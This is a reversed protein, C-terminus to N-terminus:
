EEKLLYTNNIVKFSKSGDIAKFVLGEIPQNIMPFYLLGFSDPLALIAAMNNISLNALSIKNHTIPIHILNYASCFESREEKSLYQQTEINWIDFIYIQVDKFGARNKQINPGALEGQVALNRGDAQLAEIIGSTKAAAIFANGSNEETNKLYINHSCVGIVGDKQFITISSGDVKLSVEYLTETDLLVEPINQVREQKTRRIFYPFSGEIQGRMNAAVPREWFKIGLLETLDDGEKFEGGPLSLILGQSLISRLKASRLREGKIGEFEKPSHGPKTLFPALETPVWSDIELWLVLQDKVFDGKGIICRWGLITAIELRVANPHEEISLIRRATALKRDVM